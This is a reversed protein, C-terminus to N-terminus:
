VHHTVDELKGPIIPNTLTGSPNWLTMSYEDIQAERRVLLVSTVAFM